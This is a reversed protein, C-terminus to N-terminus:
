SISNLVLAVSFFSRALRSACRFATKPDWGKSLSLYLGQMFHSRAEDRRGMKLLHKGLDCFYRAQEQQVYRRKPGNHGFRELLRSVLLRRHDLAIEPPKNAGLRHCTLPEAINCIECIHAIRPWLEHDDLGASHFAEDFQGVQDFVSRRIMASSPTPTYGKVFLRSFRDKPNYGSGAKGIPNGNQDIHMVDTIVMGVEPREELIAVQKELKTPNWLDDHDLLAIYQGKSQAIGRNRAGAVGTNEHRIYCVSKGFIRVIDGSGDESGDDVVIIEYNKWTQALVSGITQAIVDRANYLPIVVSVKVTHV